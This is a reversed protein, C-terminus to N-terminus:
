MGEIVKWIPENYASIFIISNDRVWSKLLCADSIVYVREVQRRRAEGLSIHEGCDRMNSGSSQTVYMVSDGDEKKEQTNKSRPPASGTFTEHALRHATGNTENQETCSRALQAFSGRHQQGAAETFQIHSLTYVNPSTPGAWPDKGPYGVDNCRQCWVLITDTHYTLAVHVSFYVLAHDRVSCPADRKSCYLTFCSCTWM